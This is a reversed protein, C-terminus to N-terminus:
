RCRRRRCRCRRRRSSGTSRPWRRQPSGPPSRMSASRCSCRWACRVWRRPRARGRSPDPEAHNSAHAWLDGSVCMPGGIGLALRWLGSPVTLLSIAARRWLGWNAVGPVTETEGPTGTGHRVDATFGAAPSSGSPRAGAIAFLASGVTQYMLVATCSRRTEDRYERSLMGASWVGVVILRSGDKTADIGNLNPFGGPVIAAAPGSLHITRAAGLVGNPAIPVEYLVPNFSDTFFAGRRTVVVDNFLATGAPALAIDAVTAGTRTDYAYVHGTIGGAVWLRHRSEEVKLGVAQRGPPADVFMAGAGSRLDGRYIDGDKLSGAYFTSGTGVAIGEPAFDDPLPISPPFPAAAATGTVAALLTVVLAFRCFRLM